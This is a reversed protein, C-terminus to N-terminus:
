KQTPSEVSSAIISVADWLTPAYYDAHGEGDHYRSPLLVTQIREDAAKAAQHDILGDGVLWSRALDVGFERSGELIMGPAPKRWDKRALYQAHPFAEHWPSYYVGDFRAGAERAIRLAVEANVRKVQEETALGRAIASQNTVLIAWFGLDNIRRVAESARPLMEIRTPDALYGVNLNITGDRDLFVAPRM